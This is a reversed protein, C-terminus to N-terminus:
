ADMLPRPDTLYAGKLHELTWYALGMLPGTPNYGLNQPFLCAGFVFVNHYDWHQGYRNVVSTARDTGMVAGGVNHTTQYPVISYSAGQAARNTTSIERVGDMERAIEAARELVFAAMRRDNQPFDFTMRMLPQGYADRWTPDLDLYNGPTSMSAGHMVIGVHHQYTERLARKWEAGWSPTGPPTPQYNIPRGNTQNASIYGGGVFGLDAHDFNDGNYDDVTMGLAGAGIFPNSWTGEDFFAAVAAITQYSYNRGLTGEGTAPDYIQGLGSVMMLQVNWLAYAGLCVVDAPQFVERGEADLYTVGTATRGDQSKEVRLVHSNLRLEFNEHERIRDYVCIIPDAKAMYGCGFRECFGCYTCPHLQAGYPNEYGQTVNASPMHFPNLGMGRAADHFRQLPPPTKMPPNPYPASRPGEHPNGQAQVEGGLNGAVGAAGCVKEFFDLHPELEDYTVGWDQVTLGDLISAGYREAYHTRMQLDSPLPRWIQGNWHIGAGGLGKGPLFSGLRRMPLAQQDARNRFTLTKTPTDVMHDKRRAYRLEDHEEPGAFFTADHRYDGRELVVCRQGANCLEYAATLGTWGAGVIVVDTKPMTRDAM